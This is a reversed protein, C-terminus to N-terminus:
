DPGKKTISAYANIKRQYWIDIEYEGYWNVAPMIYGVVDRFTKTVLHITLPGGYGDGTSLHFNCWYARPGQGIGASRANVENVRLEPDYFAADALGGLVATFIARPELMGFPASEYSWDFLIESDEADTYQGRVTKQAGLSRATAVNATDNTLISNLAAGQTGVGFISISGVATGMVSLFIVGEFWEPRNIMELIGRYLGVIVHSTELQHLALSGQTNTVVITVDSGRRSVQNDSLIEQHWPIQAYQYM